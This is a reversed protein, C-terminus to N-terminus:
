FFEMRGRFKTRHRVNRHGDSYEETCDYNLSVGRIDHRLPLVRSASMAMAEVSRSVTDSHAIARATEIQARAQEQIAFAELQRSAYVDPFIDQRVQALSPFCGVVPLNSHGYGMYYFIM